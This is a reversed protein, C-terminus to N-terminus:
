INLSAHMIICHNFQMHISSKRTWKAYEIDADKIFNSCNMESEGTFSSESHHLKHRLGIIQLFFHGNM